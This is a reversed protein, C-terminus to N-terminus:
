FNDDTYRNEITKNAKKAPTNIDWILINDNKTGIYIASLVKDTYSFDTYGKTEGRTCVVYDRNFLGKNFDKLRKNEIVSRKPTIYMVGDETIDATISNLDLDDDIYLNFAIEDNELEYVDSIVMKNTPVPVFCWTTLGVFLISLIACVSIGILLGKIVSKKRFNHWKESVSKLPKLDENIEKETNEAMNELAKRCCHCTKLHEDVLDKSELSCVSDYYLPLLDEIIKCSIKM